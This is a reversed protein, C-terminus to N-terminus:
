RHQGRMDDTYWYAFLVLEHYIMLIIGVPIALYAWFVSVDLTNEIQNLSAPLVKISGYLLELLFILICIHAVIIVVRRIKLPILNRFIEFGVHEGQKLALGAGLFFFWMLLFRALGNIQYISFAFVFRSAVELCILFTFLCGIFAVVTQTTVVIFKDVRKLATIM